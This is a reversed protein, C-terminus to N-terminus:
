RSNVGGVRHRSLFAVTVCMARVFGQDEDTLDPFKHIINAATVRAGELVEDLTRRDMDSLRNRM